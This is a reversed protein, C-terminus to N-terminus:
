LFEIPGGTKIFILNFPAEQKQNQNLSIVLPQHMWSWVRVKFHTLYLHLKESPQRATSSFAWEVLVRIPIVHPQLYQLSIQVVRFILASLNDRRRHKATMFTSESDHVLGLTYVHNNVSLTQIVIFGAICSFILNAIRITRWCGRM